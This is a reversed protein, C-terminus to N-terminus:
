FWLDSFDLTYHLLHNIRVQQSNYNKWPREGFACIEWLTIGFIWVDSKSNFTRKRLSEPPYWPFPIKQNEDIQYPDNTDRLKRMM